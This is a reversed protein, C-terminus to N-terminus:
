LQIHTVIFGFVWRSSVWARLLSKRLYYSFCKLFVNSLEIVYFCLGNRSSFRHQFIDFALMHEACFDSSFYKTIVSHTSCSWGPAGGTAPEDMGTPTHTNTNPVATRRYKGAMPVGPWFAQVAVPERCVLVHTQCRKCLFVFVQVFTPSLHCPPQMYAAPLCSLLSATRLRHSRLQLQM